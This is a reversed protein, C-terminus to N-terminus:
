IQPDDMRGIFLIVGTSRERIMYLFPRDAYFSPPGSPAYIGVSTVAAAETGEENVEVFTKQKIESVTLRPDDAIGGLNSWGM